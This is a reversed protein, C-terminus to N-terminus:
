WNDDPFLHAIPCIPQVERDASQQRVDYSNDNEAEDARILQWYPNVDAKNEDLKDKHPNGIIVYFIRMGIIFVGEPTIISKRGSFEVSM